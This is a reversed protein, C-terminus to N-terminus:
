QNLTEIQFGKQQAISYLVQWHRNVQQESTLHLPVGRCITEIAQNAGSILHAQAIRRFRQAIQM